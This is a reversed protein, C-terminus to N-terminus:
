KLKVEIEKKTISSIEEFVKHDFNPLKLLLKVDEKSAQNFSQKFATKYDTTKLYGKILEKKHDKKMETNTYAVWETLNFNIFSPKRAKDWDSKLCKKNFVNLHKNEKNNFHGTEHNCSNWNGSNRVGSNRDGSNRVGSNSYGSNRDGSNWDGSNSDGSNRYGSNSYGSNRVGSNRDGSNWDGSNSYGSNWDGSNFLGVNGKGINTEVLRKFKFTSVVFKDTEDIIPKIGRKITVEYVQNAGGSLWDIPRTTLHYGSRCKIVDNIIPLYAKSKIYPNYDFTGGDKAQGDKLVKYYKM